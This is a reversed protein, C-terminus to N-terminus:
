RFYLLLFYAMATTSDLLYTYFKGPVKGTFVRVIQFYEFGVGFYTLFMIPSHPVM